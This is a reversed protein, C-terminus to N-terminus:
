GVVEMEYREVKGDRITVHIRRDRQYGVADTGRLRYIEHVDVAARNEGLDLWPGVQFEVALHDPPSGWRLDHEVADIGNLTRIPTIWEVDPALHPYLSTWDGTTAAHELARGFRAAAELHRAEPAM